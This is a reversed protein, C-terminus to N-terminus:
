CRKILTYEVYKTGLGEEVLWGRIFQLYNYNKLPLLCPIFEQFAAERSLIKDFTKCFTLNQVRVNKYVFTSCIYKFIIDLFKDIDFLFSWCIPM